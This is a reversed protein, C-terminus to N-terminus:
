TPRSERCRQDSRQDEAADPILTGCGIAPILGSGNNLPIRILRLDSSGTM